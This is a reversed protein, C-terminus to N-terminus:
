LPYVRAYTEGPYTRKFWAIAEEISSAAKTAVIGHVDDFVYVRM